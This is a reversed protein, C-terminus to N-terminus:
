RRQDSDEWRLEGGNCAFLPLCGSPSYILKSFGGENTGFALAPTFRGLSFSSLELFLLCADRATLAELMCRNLPWPCLSRSFHVPPRTVTAWCWCLAPPRQGNSSPPKRQHALPFPSFADTNKRRAQRRLGMVEM